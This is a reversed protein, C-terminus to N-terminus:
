SNKSLGKSDAENTKAIKDNKGRELIIFEYMSRPRCKLNHKSFMHQFILKIFQETRMGNYEYFGVLMIPSVIIMVMIAKLTDNLEKGIIFIATSIAVTIIISILQRLTFSGVVAETFSRIEKPIKIEM